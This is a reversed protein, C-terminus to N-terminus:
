YDFTSGPQKSFEKTRPNFWRNASPLFLFIQAALILFSRFLITGFLFPQTIEYRRLYLSAMASLGGVIFFILLIIRAWNKRRSIFFLIIAGFVYGIVVGRADFLSSITTAWGHEPIMRIYNTAFFLGGFILSAAYLYLATTVVVPRKQQDLCPLPVPKTM